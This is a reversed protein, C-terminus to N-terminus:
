RLGADNKLSTFTNPRFKEIPHLCDTIFQVVERSIKLQGGIKHLNRKVDNYEVSYAELAKERDKELNSYPAEGLLIFYATAGLSFYDVKRSMLVASNLLQEPAWYLWDGSGLRVRKSTKIVMDNESKTAGVDIFKLEYNEVIVINKPKLDRVVYAKSQNEHFVKFIAKSLCLFKKLLTLKIQNVSESSIGKILCNLDSLAQGEFHERILFYGEHDCFLLKPTYPFSQETLTLLAEGEKLINHRLIGYEEKTFSHFDPVKVTVKKNKKSNALCFLYSQGGKAFAKLNDLLRFDEQMDESLFVNSIRSFVTEKINKPVIISLSIEGKQPRVSSTAIQKAKLVDFYIQSLKKNVAALAHNCLVYDQSQQTIESRLASNQHLRIVAEVLGLIDNAQILIGTSNHKIVESISGTNTSIIPIGFLQAWLLIQPTGEANGDKAVRAPHVLIDAKSLEYLMRDLPLEGLWDIRSQVNHEFAVKQLSALETGDGIISLKFFTPLYEMARIATDVGKKPILRAVVLLRGLEPHVAILKTQDVPVKLIEVPRTVGINELLTIERSSPVTVKDAMQTIERTKHIYKKQFIKANTDFGGHFSLIFPIDLEFAIMAAHIAFKGDYIAHILDIDYDSFNHIFGGAYPIYQLVNTFKFHEQNAFRKAFVTYKNQKQGQILQAIAHHTSELFNHTFLAIQM